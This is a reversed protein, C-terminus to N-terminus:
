LTDFWFGTGTSIWTLTGVNTLYLAWVTSGGLATLIRQNSGSAPNVAKMWWTITFNGTGAAGLLPKGSADILSEAVGDFICSYTTPCAPAAPAHPETFVQGAIGAGIGTPM